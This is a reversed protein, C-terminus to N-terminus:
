KVEADIDDTGTFEIILKNPLCVIPSNTLKGLKICTHDPCEAESVFIEHNEIQIRNKRGQYEVEIIQNGANELDITYLINGDQIIHVTHGYPKLIQWLSGIIGLVLIVICVAIWLKKSKM